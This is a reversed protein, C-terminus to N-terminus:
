GKKGGEGDRKPLERPSKAFLRNLVRGETEYTGEVKRKEIKEKMMEKVDSTITPDDKPDRYGAREWEKYNTIERGRHLFNRGIGFSDRTGTVGPFQKSQLIEAIGGHKM